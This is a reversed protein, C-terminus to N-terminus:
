LIAAFAAGAGAGAVLGNLYGRTLRSYPNAKRPADYSFLLLSRLFLRHVGAGATAM